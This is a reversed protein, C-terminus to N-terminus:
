KKKAAKPFKAVLEKIVSNLRAIRKEETNEIEIKAEAM